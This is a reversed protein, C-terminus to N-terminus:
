AGRQWRHPWGRAWAERYRIRDLRALLSDLLKNLADVHEQDTNSLKIIEAVLGGASDHPLGIMDLEDPDPTPYRREVDYAVTKTRSKKAGKRPRGSRRPRPKRGKAYVAVRRYIRKAKATGTGFVLGIYAAIRELVHYVDLVIGINVFRDLIYDDFWPMGDAVFVLQARVGDGWDGDFPLIGLQNLEDFAAAVVHCDGFIFEGGLSIPRGTRKDVTWM